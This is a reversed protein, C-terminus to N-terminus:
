CRANEKKCPTLAIVFNRTETLQSVNEHRAVSLTASFSLSSVFHSVTFNALLLATTTSVATTSPLHSINKM